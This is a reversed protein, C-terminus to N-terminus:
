GSGVPLESAHIAGWLQGVQLCSAREGVGRILLAEAGLPPCLKGPTNLFVPCPCPQGIQHLAVPLAGAANVVPEANGEGSRERLNDKLNASLLCNTRYYCAM